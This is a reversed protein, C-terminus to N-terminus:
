MTLPRMRKEKFKKAYEANKRTVWNRVELSPYAAPATNNEMTNAPWVGYKERYNRAAWGSKYNRSKEIALLSAYWERKTDMNPKPAATERKKRGYLVLEGKAYEIGSSQPAVTAGCHTCFRKGAEMMAGCKACRKPGAPRKEGEYATSRDSAKHTDLHDHFVETYLGLGGWEPGLNNGALDCITGNGHRGIRGCKQVHKIESNTPQADLALDVREDIGLNMTDVSCIGNLEEERYAKLIREREDDPTNCDIYEFKYGASNLADQGEAAMKRNKFYGVTFNPAGHQKYIEILDGVIQRKGNHFWEDCSAETFDNDSGLKLEARGILEPTQPVYVETPYLFGDAIMEKITSAIILDDWVLGMGKRWPTATLGIVLKNKLEDKFMDEFKKWRLHCEDVIIIEPVDVIRRILTQMSAIQVAADERAMPNDAQLVGIDYIGRTYFKKVHQNMLMVRPATMLVNNGKGLAGAAINIAYETNHTVTFDKLLYLHDGDLCFGFYEGSGIPDVSFGSVLVDRNKIRKRTVRKREIRTPICRYDGHIHARYYSVGKIKKEAVSVGFGLSRCIFEFDEILHKSKSTYEISKGGSVVSGDTDILGALLELRQQRSSTKYILPIYKDGCSSGYIGIKQFIKTIPNTKGHGNSVYYISAKNGGM